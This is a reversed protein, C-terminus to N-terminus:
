RTRATVRLAIEYTGGGLRGIMNRRIALTRVTMNRRAPGGDCEHIVRRQGATANGTVVSNLRGPLCKRMDRRTVLAIVAM